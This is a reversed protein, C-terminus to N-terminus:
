NKLYIKKKKYSKKINELIDHLINFIVQNPTEELRANLLIENKISLIKDYLIQLEKDM